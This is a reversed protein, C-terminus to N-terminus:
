KVDDGALQHLEAILDKRPRRNLSALLAADFFFGFAYVLTDACLVPSFDGTVCRLGDGVLTLTGFCLYAICVLFLRTASARGFLYGSCHFTLLILSILSILDYFYSSVSPNASVNRYVEILRFCAWVVTVLSATRLPSDNGDTLHRMVPITLVSSIVLLLGSIMNWVSSTSFAVSLTIVASALGALSALCVLVPTAPSISSIPSVLPTEKKAWALVCLAAFLTLAAAFFLALGTGSSGTPLGLEDFGTRLHRWLLVGAIVGGALAVPPLLQRLVDSGNKM